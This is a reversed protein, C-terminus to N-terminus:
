MVYVVVCCEDVESVDEYDFCEFLEFWLDGKEVDVDRM